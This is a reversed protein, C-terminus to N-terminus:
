VPAQGTVHIGHMEIILESLRHSELAADRMPNNYIAYCRSVESGRPWTRAANKHIVGVAEDSRHIKRLLISNADCEREDVLRAAYGFGEHLDDILGPAETHDGVM